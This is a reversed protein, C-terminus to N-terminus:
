QLAAKKRRVRTLSWFAVLAALTLLAVSGGGGENGIGYRHEVTIPMTQPGNVPATGRDSTATVSFNFTASGTTRDSTLTAVTKLSEATPNSTVTVPTPTSCTPPPPTGGSVACTFTVRGTFGNLPIVIIIALSTGGAPASITPPTPPTLMVLYGSAQAICMGPFVVAVFLLLCFPGWFM